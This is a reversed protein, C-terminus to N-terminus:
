LNSFRSFLIKRLWLCMIRIKIFNFLIFYHKSCSEQREFVLIGTLFVNNLNSSYFHHELVKFYFFFIFFKVFSKSSLFREGSSFPLNNAVDFRCWLGNVKYGLHLLLLLPHPFFAEFRGRM